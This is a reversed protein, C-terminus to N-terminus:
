YYGGGHVSTIPDATPCNTKEITGVTAQEVTFTAFIDRKVFVARSKNVEAWLMKLKADSIEVCVFIHALLRTTDYPIKRKDYTKPSACFGRGCKVRAGISYRACAVCFCRKSKVAIRATAL